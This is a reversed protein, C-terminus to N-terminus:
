RKKGKFGLFGFKWLGYLVLALGAIGFLWWKIILYLVYAGGALILLSAAKRIMNEGEYELVM